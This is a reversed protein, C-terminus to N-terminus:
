LIYMEITVKELGNEATIHSSIKNIWGVYGGINYRKAWQINLLETVECIVEMRVVKRNLLFHAYESMFTDFLGRRAVKADCLIDGKKVGEEPIDYPAEIFSRIKLSFRGESPRSNHEVWVDSPVPLNVIGTDSQGYYIEGFQHLLKGYFIAESATQTYKYVAVVLRKYVADLAKISMNRRHAEDELWEFYSNVESPTLIDGNDQIVVYLFERLIGDNDELARSSCIYTCIDSSSSVEQSWGKAIADAGSVLRDSSLLNANSLSYISRIFSAAEEKTYTGDYTGNEGGIGALNGNYDYDAGWADISDSSMGYLGPVIRWKYSGFGDYDYDYKQFTANTGGGRMIAISTGWDYEQLPSVGEDTKGPDFAERTSSTEVVYADVYDDGFATKVKRECDEHWMEEDVYAALVQERDHANVSSLPITIGDDTVAMQTSDSGAGKEARGNVDNFNVPTFGSSLEEIFDEMDESCDGLEVGKYQGVEFIVPHYEAATSADGDLKIRYKNGTVLDVWLTMDSLGVHQIIQQYKESTTLRRYDKYDYTTDYDRVANRINADQEKRDSEASYKMRFGTIKESVKHVSVVTGNFMIPESDDRFIDRIFMPKVILTEQDLYFRIGFSAFLSDIINQVSDAPFNQNNAYMKMINARLTYKFEKCEIYAKQITAGGYGDVEQGVQYYKGDVRIGNVNKEKEEECSLQGGCNRSSLWKNIEDKSNYDFTFKENGWFDKGYKRELDYKCKTTFFALRRFDAVQVLESNDYGIGYERLYAFLCDLFYLVYFCVGSQPRDAELVLYPNFRGDGSDVKTEVQDISNGNDDKKYHKYCVRANCFKAAPYADTVNTFGKTYVPMGNAGFSSTSYHDEDEACEGPVSFGLAPLEMQVVGQTSTSDQKSARAFRASRFGQKSGSLEAKLECEASFTATVNGICEGIQLDEKDDEPIPVDQCELNGFYDSLSKARSTMSISVKDVIEQDEATAVKGNRIPVGDVIISMAKNEHEVLRADSQIDDVNGLIERNGELPVQFSYSYTEQVDNFYPNSDEIDISTDPTLELFKGDIKIALHHYM